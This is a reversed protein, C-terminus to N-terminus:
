KRIYSSAWWNIADQLTYEILGYHYTRGNRMGKERSEWDKIVDRKTQYHKYEYLDYRNVGLCKYYCGNVIEVDPNRLKRRIKRNAYRKGAKMSRSHSGGWLTDRYLPFKRYSRSM